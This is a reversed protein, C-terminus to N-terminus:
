PVDDASNPHPFFVLHIVLPDALPQYYDFQYELEYNNQEAGQPVDATDLITALARAEGITRPSACFFAAPGNHNQEWGWDQVLDQAPAPLQELVSPDIEGHLRMTFCIDWLPALYPRIEPDEWTGAPWSSPDRLREIVLEPDNYYADFESRFREVGEPTLQQELLGTSYRNAGEPLDGQFRWIVKGDPYVWIATCHGGGGPGFGDCTGFHVLLEGRPPTSLPVGPPPLGIVGVRGATTSTTAQPTPPTPDNRAALVVGIVILLVAAAAAVMGLRPRDSRASAVSLREPATADGSAAQTRAVGRDDRAMPAVRSERRAPDAQEFLRMVEEDTIM